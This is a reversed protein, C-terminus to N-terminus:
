ISTSAMTGDPEASAAELTFGSVVAGGIAAPRKWSLGITSSVDKGIAVVPPAPQGPPIPTTCMRM